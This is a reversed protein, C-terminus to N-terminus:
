EENKAESGYTTVKIKGGASQFYIEAANCGGPFAADCSFTTKGGPMTIRMMQTNTSALSFFCLWGPPLDMEADCAACGCSAVEAVGENSAGGGNEVWGIDFLLECRAPGQCSFTIRPEALAGFQVPEPTFCTSSRATLSPLVAGDLQTEIGVRGGISQVALNAGVVGTKAAFTKTEAPALILQEDCSECGACQQRPPGGRFMNQGGASCTALLLVRSAMAVLHHIAGAGKEEGILERYRVLRRRFISQVLGSEVERLTLAEVLAVVSCCFSLPSSM